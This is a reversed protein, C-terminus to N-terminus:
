AARKMRKAVMRKLTLANDVATDDLRTYNLQETLYAQYGIQRVRAAEAATTGLTARRALRVVNSQWSEPARGALEPVRAPGVSRQRRPPASPRQAGARRPLMAGLTALTGSFLFTRRSSRSM